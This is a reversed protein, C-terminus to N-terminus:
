VESMATVKEDSLRHRYVSTGLPCCIDLLQTSNFFGVTTRLVEDFIVQVIAQSTCKHLVEKLDAAVPAAAFLPNM